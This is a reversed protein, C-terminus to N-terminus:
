FLNVSHMKINDYNNQSYIQFDFGSTVSVVSCFIHRTNVEEMTKALEERRPCFVGKHSYMSDLWVLEWIKKDIM